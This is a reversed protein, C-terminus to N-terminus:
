IGGNLRDFVEVARQLEALAHSRYIDTEFPLAARRAANIVNTSAAFLQDMRCPKPAGGQFGGDVRRDANM